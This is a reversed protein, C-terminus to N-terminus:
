SSGLAARVLECGTGETIRLANASMWALEGGDRQLRAVIAKLRADFDGDLDLVLAAGADALRAAAFGQNPALVVMAAPLGLSCREWATAGAAGIAFDADAMLRAMDNVGVLVEVPLKMQAAFARVQDLWPATPGMVVTIRTQLALTAGALAELVRQTANPKDVGGLSVLVHRLTGDRRRAVSHSRLRAFDPRLMAYKAGCLLRAHAPVLDAYAAPDRGFTQDLLLDCDHRRDALDDIVMVSDVGARLATEWEADLAYHDVVLWAPREGANLIAACEAADQAQTAGLWAAHALRGDPAADRGELLVVAHGRASIQGALNGPHPRCVFTCSAGHRVFSDALTLCRM